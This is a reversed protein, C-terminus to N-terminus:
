SEMWGSRQNPAQTYPKFYGAYNRPYLTIRVYAAKLDIFCAYIPKHKEAAQEMVRRITFIQDACGRGKRFGAQAESLRSDFIKVLRKLLIHLFMKGVVSLLSIGRWSDCVSRDGKGKYLPVLIAKQWDHPVKEIRWVLLIVRHIWKVVWSIDEHIKLIEAFIGDVGAAKHCKLKKIANRM